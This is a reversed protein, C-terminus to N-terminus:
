PIINYIMGKNNNFNNSGPTFDNWSYWGNYLGYNNSGWKMYFYLYEVGTCDDFYYGYTRYGDCFWEHGSTGDGFLIVPRNNELNAKVATYNYTTQTASYYNFKNRLVYGMDSTSKVYTGYCDYIPQDSYVERIKDHITKIFNATTTTAYTLPMDAWNYTAPYQHYKMVQAMAIPACGAYVQFQTEYCNIYPLASKFAGTQWWILSTLPGKTYIEEHEYCNEPPENNTSKLGSPKSKQIYDWVKKQLETQEMDSNQIEYIQEETDEIWFELGSSAYSSEDVDFNNDLSFGLIPPTRKDASLIIFGGENYNIVYFSTRKGKNKFEDISKISKTSTKASKLILGEKLEPLSIVSAIEKTLSLDVFNEQVSSLKTNEIENNKSCSFALLLVFILVTLQKTKKFKNMM